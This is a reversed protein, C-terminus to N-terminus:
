LFTEVKKVDAHEHLLTPTIFIVLERAERSQKSVGLLDSKMGPFNKASSGHQIDLLGGIILTEQDKLSVNTSIRRQTKVPLRDGTTQREGTFAITSVEVQQLDLNIEGNL